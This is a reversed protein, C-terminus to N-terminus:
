KETNELPNAWGFLAEHLPVLKKGIGKNTAPYAQELPRAIVDMETQAQPLTVGPRLRGVPMLWHDMRESYRTSAPNIPQWLDDPNGYFPAFGPPMVGVVTSVIGTTTFTKGLVDPDGNFHTKWFSDSIVVTQALERMEEAVFIRGFIPRVGLLSFFNPTLNQV